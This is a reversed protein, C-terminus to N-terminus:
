FSFIMGGAMPVDLFPETWTEMLVHVSESMWYGPGLCILVFTGMGPDHDLNRAGDVRELPKATDRDEVVVVSLVAVVNAMAVVEEGVLVLWM